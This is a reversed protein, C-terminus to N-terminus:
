AQRSLITIEAINNSDMSGTTFVTNTLLITSGGDSAVAAEFGGVPTALTGAVTRVYVAGGATPTGNNITVCIGGRTLVDSPTGPKYYGAPNYYDQAQKVERIAVGSFQAATNSAGFKSVSNDSNLVVPDGFNVNITDASRVGRNLIICDANRAFSGPYGVNFTIGISSGPM